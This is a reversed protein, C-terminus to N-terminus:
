FFLDLFAKIWNKKYFWRALGFGKKTTLRLDKELFNKVASSSDILTLVYFAVQLFMFIIIAGLIMGFIGDVTRFGRNDRLDDIHIKILLIIISVGVWLIVFSLILLISKTIGSAITDCISDAIDDVSEGDYGKSIFNALWKPLGLDHLAGSLGDSAETEATISQITDSAELKKYFHNYIPKRFLVGLVKAFRSCFILSILLGSIWNAIKILIRSAGILFGILLSLALLAIVIIDLYGIVSQMSFLTNLM